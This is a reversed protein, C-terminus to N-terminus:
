YIYQPWPPITDHKHIGAKEDSLFVAGVLSAYPSSPPFTNLEPLTRVLLVNQSKLNVM